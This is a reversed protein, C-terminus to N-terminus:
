RTQITVEGLSRNEAIRSTSAGRYFGCLPNEPASAGFTLTGFFVKNRHLTETTESLPTQYELYIYENTNKLNKSKTKKKACIARDNRERKLM